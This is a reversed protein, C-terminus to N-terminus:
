LRQRGQPYRQLATIQIKEFVLSDVSQGTRLARSILAGIESESMAFVEEIGCIYLNETNNNKVINLIETCDDGVDRGM